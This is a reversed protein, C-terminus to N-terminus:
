AANTRDLHRFQRFATCHPVGLPQAIARWSRHQTRAVAVALAEADALAARLQRVAELAVLPNSAAMDNLPGLFALSAAGGTRHNDNM